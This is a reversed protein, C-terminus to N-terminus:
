GQSGVFSWIQSGVLGLNTHLCTNETEPYKYKIKYM